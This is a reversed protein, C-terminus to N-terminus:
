AEQQSPKLRERWQDLKTQTIMKADDTSRDLVARRVVSLCFEEVEAFNLGLLRKAITEAAFGFNVQCRVGISAVFATLQARTPIPLEIRLQFRRWVARDLLEPHNSAAVVVVYDPLEDMQLLLSSVVRKIEGTEHTDGREKGLTEFEDFFLVCRQTRAYDLLSKLRSSTEGLYSGILTEYRVVILPVMLEFALAEALTTKGNGPPGALLVKHRPRLNHAHLLEARHQEEILEKLQDRVSEALVISDLGREPAVEFILEKHAGGGPGGGNRPGLAPATSQFLTAQQLSKALRDALIRHGKDREEKILSEAAKRFSPQDGSSAAKVLEVLTDAQAM